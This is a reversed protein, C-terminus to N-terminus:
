PTPDGTLIKVLAADEPTEPQNPIARIASLVTWGNEKEIDAMMKRKQMIVKDLGSILALISATQRAFKYIVNSDIKDDSLNDFATELKALLKRQADADKKAAVSESYLECYRNVSAGYLADNKNIVTLLKTVRLYEKHAVPDEKVAAREFCKQNTLTTYAETRDRSEREAKTRHGTCNGIAKAGRPM